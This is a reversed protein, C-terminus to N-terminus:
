QGKDHTEEEGHVDPRVFRIAHRADKRYTFLAFTFENDMEMARCRKLVEKALALKPVVIIYKLYNLNRNKLLMNVLCLDNENFVVIQYEVNDKLFFIQAIHPGRCHTNHRITPSNKFVRLFVWFAMIMKDDVPTRRDAFMMDDTCYLYQKKQLDYITREYTADDLNKMYERMQEAKLAGYENICDMVKMDDERIRDAIM